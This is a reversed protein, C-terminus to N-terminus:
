EVVWARAMKWLRFSKQQSGLVTLIPIYMHPVDRGAQVGAQVRVESPSEVCHAATVSACKVIVSLYLNLRHLSQSHSSKKKRLLVEPPHV